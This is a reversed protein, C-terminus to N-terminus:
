IGYKSNLKYNPDGWNEGPHNTKLWKFYKGKEGSPNFQWLGIEGRKSTIAPNFGSEDKANMLLAALGENTVGAERFGKVVSNIVDKQKGSFKGVGADDYGGAGAEGARKRLGGSAGGGGGGGGGGGVGGVGGPTTGIPFARNLIDRIEQINDPIKAAALINYPGIRAKDGGHVTIDRGPEDTKDSGYLNGRKSGAWRKHIKLQEETLEGAHAPSGFIMEEIAKFIGRPISKKEEEPTMWHPTILYPKMWEPIVGHKIDQITKSMIGSKIWKRFEDVSTSFKDIAEKGGWKLINASFEAIM